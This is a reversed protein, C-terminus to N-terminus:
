SRAEAAQSLPRKEARLRALLEFSIPLGRERAVAVIDCDREAPISNRAKMTRAHNPSIGLTVLLGHQALLAIIESVTTPADM